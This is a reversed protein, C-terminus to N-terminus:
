NPGLYGLAKLRERTEKDLEMLKRGPPLRLWVQVGAPDGRPPAFLNPPSGQEGDSEIDPLRFPFSPPHVASEALSVESPRLTRGDRTGELSIPAGRPRLIFSVERPHGTRPRARLELRRGNERVAYREDPGLGSAEVAEIWGDGRLTLTYEGTGAVRVVYRFPTPSMAAEAQGKLFRVREPRLHLLSTREGPDEVLDFYLEDQEPSFRRIYKDGETRVGHAVIGRHSIESVAARIEAKGELVRQLPRGALGAPVPLGESELITPLVDVCQVQQAVRRGGYRQKPFKVLLPVEILEDFLSRGHLWRGHDLFEEGHDALFVVLARDYLGRDRLAKVFRGFERDGFAVDGDYQAILRERDEPELYDTRPDRGPHGPVPHPEFMRDFPPPPAYPVHPDMTHV